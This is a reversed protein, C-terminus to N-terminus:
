CSIVVKKGYTDPAAIHTVIYDALDARSIRGPKDLGDASARYTGTAPRDTLLPARVVTWDTDSVELEDEMRALDLYINRLVREVIYTAVLRRLLPIRSATDLGATSVTMVRRVGKAEMARVAHTMGESFVMTTTRSRVGLISIVVDKGAIVDRVGQADTVDGRVVELREHRATVAAPERVYATVRHGEALARDVVLRGTRGAAGIVLLEM